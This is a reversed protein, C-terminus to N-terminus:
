FTQAARGVYWAIIGDMRHCDLSPDEPWGIGILPTRVHVFLGCLDPVDTVPDDGYRVQWTKVPRLLARLRVGGARPAEFTILGAPPRGAATLQAAIIIALAGGLSHGMVYVQSGALLHLFLALLRTGGELFGAHCFGLAPYQASTEPRANLDRLWNALDDEDTGRCSVVVVDGALVYVVARVDHWDFVIGNPLAAYADQCYGAAEADTM